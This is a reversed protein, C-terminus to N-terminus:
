EDDLNFALLAIGHWALILEVEGNRYYYRFTMSFSGSTLMCRITQIEDKGISGKVSEMVDFVPESELLPQDGVIGTFTM